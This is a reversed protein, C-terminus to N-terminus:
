KKYIEEALRSYSIFNVKYWGNTTSQVSDEVTMLEAGLYESLLSGFLNRVYRVTYTHGYVYAPGGYRSICIVKDGPNFKM